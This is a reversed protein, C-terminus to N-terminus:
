EKQGHAAEKEDAPTIIGAAVWKDRMSNVEKGFRAHATRIRQMLSDLERGREEMRSEADEDATTVFGLGVRGDLIMFALEATLRQFEKEFFDLQKKDKEIMLRQRRTRIIDIGLLPLVVLQTGWNWWFFTDPRWANLATFVVWALWGVMVAIRMPSRVLWHLFNKM